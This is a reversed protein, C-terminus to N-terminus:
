RCPRFFGALRWVLSVFEGDHNAAASCKYEDDDVYLSALTKVGSDKTCHGCQLFYNNHVAESPKLVRCSTCTDLYPGPLM